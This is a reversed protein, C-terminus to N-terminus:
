IQDNRNCRYNLRCIRIPVLGYAATDYHASAAQTHRKHSSTSRIASASRNHLLEVQHAAIQPLAPKEAPSDGFIADRRHEAQPTAQIGFGPLRLM